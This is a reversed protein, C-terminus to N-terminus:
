SSPTQFVMMSYIYKPVSTKVKKEAMVEASLYRYMHFPEAKSFQALDLEMDPRSSEDQPVQMCVALGSNIDFLVKKANSKLM